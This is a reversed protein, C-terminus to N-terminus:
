WMGNLDFPEPFEPITNSYDGEIDLNVGVDQWNNTLFPMSFMVDGVSVQDVNGDPQDVQSTEHHGAPTLRMSVPSEGVMCPFDESIMEDIMRLVNRSRIIERVDPIQERIQSVAHESIHHIQQTLPPYVPIERLLLEFVDRLCEAQPWQNAVVALTNSCARLADSVDPSM